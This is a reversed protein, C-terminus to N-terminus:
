PRRVAIPAVTPQTMAVYDAPRISLSRDLRGANFIMEPQELLEHDIILLLDPDFSFPAISGSICGTLREAVYREALHATRGGSLAAIAQLDVRRHGCVVALVYTVVDWEDEGCVCLVLSKAAYEIRHERLASARRTEGMAAHEILRHDVGHERLLGMLRDHVSSGTVEDTPGQALNSV